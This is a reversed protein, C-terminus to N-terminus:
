TLRRGRFRDFPFPVQHNTLSDRAMILTRRPRTLYVLNERLQLPLEFFSRKLKKRLSLVFQYFGRKPIFGFFWPKPDPETVLDTVSM